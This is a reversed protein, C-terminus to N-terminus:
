NSYHAWGNEDNQNTPVYCSSLLKLFKM